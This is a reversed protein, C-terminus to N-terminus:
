GRRRCRRRMERGACGGPRLGRKAAEGRRPPRPSAALRSFSTVPRAQGCLPAHQHLPRVRLQGEPHPTDNFEANFLDNKITTALADRDTGLSKIQSLANKYTSDGGSSGTKLAATDARLVDTGFQGVSSNLQKYCVALPQFRKDGTQGPSITLDETLVRGDDIYDDKLGTLAMITPRTDTHDAWTGPNGISTVLKPSSNATGDSSPGQAPSFGDVGKNAVGPGVLGLYTNDIEPAYYGHDWAFGNNISTCKQWANAQSVGSACSTSAGGDTTGGVLFYDRKPFITFSPTRNADANVFHLLQEAAPDAEYQTLNEQVNGDYVDNVTANAFDRELKRTTSDTPGPNGTIFISDGQPENYFPTTDNLQNALLGHISVQMEGIKNGGSYDCTSNSQWSVPAAGCTPQVARTANAGAFHDGEDATIVFLTNSKDIGDDALRQFFTAFAANYAQLNQEYCPDGPGEAASGSTSPNSCGSPAVGLITKKEHADSIYGYTIPVGVEQMDAVYALTQAASIPGFGPFGPTFANVPAPVKFNGKMTNGNLDTLNGSGDVVPYTHGNVVHNQGSNAAQALQPTLYRHGFVAQFGTYGGPEDPLSDTVATSSM